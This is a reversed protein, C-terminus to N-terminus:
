SAMLIGVMTVHYIAVAYYVLFAFFLAVVAAPRLRLRWLLYLGGLVLVTKVAMFLVPDVALLRGMLPNAEPAVGGYVSLLTAVGDALNLLVTAAVIGKLWGFERPTGVRM